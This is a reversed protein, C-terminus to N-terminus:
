NPFLFPLRTSVQGLKDILDALESITASTISYCGECQCFLQMLVLKTTLVDKNHTRTGEAVSGVFGLSRERM